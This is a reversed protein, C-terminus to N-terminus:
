ENTNSSQISNNIDKILSMTSTDSAFVTNLGQPEQAPDGLYDDGIRWKYNNAPNAKGYGGYAWFNFGALFGDAENSKVINKFMAQYFKDRFETKAEPSLSESNRPFGFESMVIPRNSEKAVEIHKAMYANANDIAVQLSGAEDDKKYWSWNKPWMHMTLYDIDPNQHNKEFLEVSNVSGAAGESGTSILQRPALSEILAVSEDLWKKFAVKNKLSFVRPENALQWSMITPDQNYSVGTITNTRGIIFAIHRYYDNKCPECSHYQETYDMYDQWEYEPLFPDPAEGYGNWELYQSMGGSWVWNNNLYLVAEMDRKAMEALLFDLGILLEEDYVGPEVQLAPKISSDTNGGDGGVLIRLNNIGHETLNDLEKILRKRNGNPAGLLPGYWYNTGVYYYPKGHKVFQGDKVQIFDQPFAIAISLSNSPESLGSENVAIVRYSVHGSKNLLAKDQFLVDTNPNFKNKGDSVGKAIVQWKESQYKREVIYSEGVPAGLWALKLDSTVSRLIPAEPKPLKPTLSNGNMKAQVDRLLKTVQREQNSDGEKFGPLHYSYYDGGGEPHWYFGGNHRRGRFGWIMAGAAQHGEHDFDLVTDMIETLGEIPKLGFEGVLYVKKGDVAALDNEVTEPKNNNNVTYFHNSIIDINPDTLSSPLISLYNGDIVLQNPALSKIHKATKSVFATTSAKLENGTEWAMISKEQYYYRGTITNKRTIVQEIIHLYAAFSKSDTLYFDDESEGYFAALQKRGGWWEWHDIFPIILRLGQADAHAVLQDFVVMAKENLTPMGGSEAPKLIHVERGCKADDEHEVSLVYIRTAKHGTRVLSKVWNEQEDSTPWKFYQGWGRRDNKCVGKVDDEIRHLEPANLGVFRFTENGDMLKSGDRTIFHQFNSSVANFSLLLLFFSVLRM